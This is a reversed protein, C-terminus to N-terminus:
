KLWDMDDDDDFLANKAAAQSILRSYSSSLFCVPAAPKPAEAVPAAAAPVAVPKKEGFM